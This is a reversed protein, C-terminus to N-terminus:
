KSVSTVKYNPVRRQPQQEKKEELTIPSTRRNIKESAEEVDTEENIEIAKSVNFGTKALIADRKSVDNLKIKVAVDKIIDIVGEPAFDLCDLLQDLTGTELLTRVEVETYYYEPEPRTSFLEKVAEENKIVLLNTFIYEGGVQYLLKRIEEFPIKKKERKQFTRILGNSDPIEYGVGGSSRNIVEILDTDKLM